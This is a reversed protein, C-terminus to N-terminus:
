WGKTLLTQEAQSPVYEACGAGLGQGTRGSIGHFDSGCTVLLGCRKAMGQYKLTDEPWYGPYYAEVGGLGKKALFVIFQELTTDEMDCQKPHALVPIGGYKRVLLVAEAPTLKEHEVYAPRGKGLYREFAEAATTVAGMRVMARAINGRGSVGQAKIDEFEIGVGARRLRELMLKTRELRKKALYDLKYLLGPAKFDIGYGLIHVEAEHVSSLEIGPIVKIGTGKAAAIAPAVGGVTDHDTIAITELGADAAMLVIQAPSFEGDSASTHIHLDIM